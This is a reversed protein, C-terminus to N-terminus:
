TVVQEEGKPCGKGDVEIGQLTNECKDLFDAVGDEDADDFSDFTDEITSYGKDAGRNFFFLVMIIVFLAIIGGILYRWIQGKTGLGMKGVEQMMLSHTQM